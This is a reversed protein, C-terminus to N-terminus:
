ILTGSRVRDHDVRCLRVHLWIGQRDYLVRRLWEHDYKVM